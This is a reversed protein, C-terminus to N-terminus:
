VLRLKPRERPPAPATAGGEVQAALMARWPVVCHYPTGGFTLTARVGAADIELDPIPPQLGYGIRLTLVPSGRQQEPVRVGLAQTRFTILVPGRELLARLVAAQADGDPPDALEAATSTVLAAVVEAPAAGVEAAYRDIAEAVEAPVEVRAPPEGEREWTIRTKPM